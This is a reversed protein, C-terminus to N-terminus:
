RLYKQVNLNHESLTKAYKVEGTDLTTIFYWYENVEPNLVAMIAPKSPSAIPSPPLKPYKYTNWLSDTSRDEATTFVDGYKNHLYHVTSDAQLPWGSDLRKWFIHAIIPMSEVDPSERQVISAMTMIEHLTRGSREVEQLFEDTLIRETHNILRMLIRDMSEGVFIRYTEPALYGELSVDDPLYNNLRSGSMQLGIQDKKIKAPVGTLAFFEEETALGEKAFYSSIQRLSWGPIITIEREEHLLPYMLSDAVRAITIPKDLRFEGAQVKRDLGKMVLFKRFYLDNVIINESKLRESLQVVSEDKNIVFNIYELNTVDRVYIKLYTDVGM